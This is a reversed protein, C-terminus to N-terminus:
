SFAVPTATVIYVKGAGASGGIASGGKQGNQSVVLKLADTTTFKGPVARFGSLSPTSSNFELQTGSVAYGGHGVGSGFDVGSTATLLSPANTTSDAIDLLVSIANIGFIGSNSAVFQGIDATPTTGNFGTDVEIWADLLIDGVAPTYFAVGTNLNATNYAFSFPGRVFSNGKAALDTTLNTVNAEAIPLTAVLLGNNPTTTGEPM